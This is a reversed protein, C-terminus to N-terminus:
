QQVKKGGASAGVPAGFTFAATTTSAASAASAQGGFTFASSSAAAGGAAPAPAPAPQGSGFTFSPTASAGAGGLIGGSGTSASDGGAGPKPTECSACKTTGPDNRVLCADCKWEGPKKFMSMDFGNTVPPASASASAATGATGVDGGSPKSESAGAVALPAVALPAMAAQEACSKGAAAGRRIKRAKRPETSFEFDGPDVRMADDHDRDSTLALTGSDKDRGFAADKARKVPFAESFRFAAPDAARRRAPVRRSTTTGFAFDTDTNALVM